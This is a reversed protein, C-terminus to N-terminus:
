ESVGQAEESGLGPSRPIQYMDELGLVDSIFAICHFPVWLM